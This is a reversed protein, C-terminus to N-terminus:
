RRAHGNVGVGATGPFNLTITTTLNPDQVSSVTLTCTAVATDNATATYIVTGSPGAITLNNTGPVTGTTSAVITADAGCTTTSTMAADLGGSAATTQETVVVSRNNLAGTGSFTLNGASPNNANNGLSVYPITVSSTNVGDNLSLGLSTVNGSGTYTLGQNVNGGQAAMGPAVSIPNSAPLTINTTGGSDTLTLTPYNGVPGYYTTIVDGAPDLENETLNITQMHGDNYFQSPSSPISLSPASNVPNINVSLGTVSGSTITFAGSTGSGVVTAGQSLTVTIGTYAGPALAVNCTQFVPSGSAVCGTYVGGSGTFAGSVPGPTIAYGISTVNTGIYDPSRRSGSSPGLNIPANIRIAAGQTFQPPASAGSPAVNGAGGSCAALLAAALSWALLSTRNM